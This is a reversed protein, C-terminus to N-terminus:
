LDRCVSLQGRVRFVRKREREREGSKPNEREKEDRRFAVLSFSECVRSVTARIAIVRRRRRRRCRRHSLIM